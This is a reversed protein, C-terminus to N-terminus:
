IIAGYAVYGQRKGVDIIRALWNREAPIKIDIADTQAPDVSRERSPSIRLGFLFIFKPPSLCSSPPLCLIAVFLRLAILTTKPATYDLFLCVVEYKILRWSKCHIPQPWTLQRPLPKDFKEASVVRRNVTTLFEVFGAPSQLFCFPNRTFLAFARM